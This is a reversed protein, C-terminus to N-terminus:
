LEFHHRHVLLDYYRQVQRFVKTIIKKRCHRVRKKIQKKQLLAKSININM